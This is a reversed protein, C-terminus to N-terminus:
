SKLSLTFYYTVGNDIVIGVTYDKETQGILQEGYLQITINLQTGDVQISSSIFDKKVSEIVVYGKVSRARRVLWENDTIFIKLVGEQEVDSSVKFDNIKYITSTNIVRVRKTLNDGLNNNMVYDVMIGIENNNGMSNGNYEYIGESNKQIQSFVDSHSAIFNDIDIDNHKMEGLIEEQVKMFYVNISDSDITHSGDTQINDVNFSIAINDYECIGDSSRYKYHINYPVNSTYFLPSLNSVSFSVSEGSNAKAILEIETEEVDVDYSCSVNVFTYENGYPISKEDIYRSIPYNKADFRDNVGEKMSNAGWKSSSLNDTIDITESDNFGYKIKTEYFKPHNATYNTNLLLTANETDYLYETNGNKSVINMENDYMMEIGNYSFGSIRGNYYVNEDDYSTMVLMDYDLRRDIQIVRFYPMSNGIKNVIKSIASTDLTQNSANRCVGDLSDSDNPLSSYTCLASKKCNDNICGGNNFIAYYFGIKHYDTSTYLANFVPNNLTTIPSGSIMYNSGIVHPMNDECKMSNYLTLYDEVGEGGIRNSVRRVLTNDFYKDESSLENNQGNSIFVGNSMDLVCKLKFALIDGVNSSDIYKMWMDSNSLSPFDYTEENNVTFWGNLYENSNSFNGYSANSYGNSSLADYFSNKNILFKIPIGNITLNLPKPENVVIEYTEGYIDDCGNERIQISYRWPKKIKFILKGEVISPEECMYEEINVIPDTFNLTVSKVFLVDESVGNKSVTIEYTGHTEMSKVISVIGYEENNINITNITITGYDEECIGEYEDKKLDTSTYTMSIKSPELIADKSIVRQYGDTVTVTYNGNNLGTFTFVNRDQSLQSQILRGQNNYLECTYPYGVGLLIGQIVGNGEEKCSNPTTTLKMSFQSLSNNSCKRFFNKTLLDIATSGNKLGFYFYYSNEYLPFAYKGDRHYYFHRKRSFNDYYLEEETSLPNKSRIGGISMYARSNRYKADNSNDVNAMAGTRFFIYDESKDDTSVIMNEKSYNRSYQNCFLNLRGDFSSPYLYNIGYFKYGTNKDHVTGVLRNNNLTAFMARVDTLNVESSTIMGDGAISDGEIVTTSGTKGGSGGRGEGSITTIQRDKIIEMDGTTSLECIRELNVCSKPLTYFYSITGGGGLSYFPFFENYVRQAIGFFMGASYEIIKSLDGYNRNDGWNMGSVLIQTKDIQPLASTRKDPDHTVPEGRNNDKKGRSTDGGGNVTTNNRRKIGYIPAIPPINCTTSPYMDDFQPIGNIDCDNLSGLLVIDTSFLRTYPVIAYSGEGGSFDDKCSDTDYDGFAYYYVQTLDSNVHQKILGHGIQDTHVILDYFEENDYIIPSFSDDAYELSCTNVLYLEDYSDNDCNCFDSVFVNDGKKYKNKKRVSWFWLPFYLCGNVWDNYFDLSNVDVNNELFSAADFNDKKFWKNFWNGISYQFMSFFSVRWRNNRIKNRDINQYFSMKNYPFPNIGQANSANVGHIGITQDFKPEKGNQIRPIYSKVTYIKNWYLDRFCIDPTNSGFEYYDEPNITDIDKTKGSYVIYPEVETDILPPNCPVLYRAKHKTMTEDGNDDLTFRFRVSARTPIGKAPDNTPIINGYEDTGIFDLNMPIQYCWVGNGDILNNGQIPFEEISGSINKRIMEITGESTTLQSANGINPSFECKHNIVNEFNDTITSGIFVCTTEFLYQVDVDKRTISIEDAEDSGWFPTVNVTEDQSIVQALNDLNTGYKFESPSDFLNIGYGKYVLDRPKQSLIGIDSLDIDVHLKQNGVPVGFIMYDGSQNTTTTYKWYKDYVELVSDNDLIMRKSPFTGIVKYCDDYKNESPLLNYRRGEADRSTVTDYSYIQQLDERQKDEESIEIFVSIKANQIGMANNALVRGVIVGYNSTQLKYVRESSLKLSLIEYLDINKQMKVTISKNIGVDTRIRFSKEM